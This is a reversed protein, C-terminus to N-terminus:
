RWTNDFKVIDEKIYRVNRWNKSKGKKRIILDKKQKEKKNKSIQNLRWLNLAILIIQQGGIKM